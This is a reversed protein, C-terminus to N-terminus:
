KIEKELIKISLEHAYDLNETAMYVKLLFDRVERDKEYYKEYSKALEAAEKLHNSGQLARVAKFFYEKKSNYDETVSFFHMYIGSAKINEKRMLYFEALRKKWETSTESYALLLIEARQYEKNRVLAYYEDKQWAEQRETDYQALAHVYKTTDAPYSLKVSLYYADKLLAINKDDKALLQKLFIYKARDYDLFIAESYWKQLDEEKYVDDELIQDMLTYLKKKLLTKQEEDNSFNYDDKILNYSLFTVRTRMEKDKSKLLLELLKLSLDKNGTSLSQNALLLMIEENEPEQELINKLYLMSLDYNTKEALIQEKIMDKPHLVVLIAIFVVFIFILEKYSAVYVKESNHDIHHM